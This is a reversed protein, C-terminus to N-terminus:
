VRRPLGRMPAVVAGGVPTPGLLREAASLEEAPDRNPAPTCIMATEVRADGVFERVTRIVRGDELLQTAFSHRLSDQEGEHSRRHASSSVRGRPGGNRAPPPTTERGIETSTPEPRQFSRDGRGAETQELLKRGLVSSLEVGGSDRERDQV